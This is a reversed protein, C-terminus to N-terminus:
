EWISNMKWVDFSKVNLNDGQLVSIMINKSDEKIPYIRTSISERYNAFVELISHDIFIHLKLTEGKELKIKGTLKSNHCLTSLSSKNREVSFSENNSNYEISTREKHDESCLVDISFETLNDTIEIEAIIELARGKIEPIWSKSVCINEYKKHNERLMELEKVPQMYLKHNKISIVRPISQAGSWEGCDKFDGRSGETLWGWIIRRGSKDILSNPAYFGEWGSYDLTGESETVFKYDNNITGICYKVKDNPSYVLVYKDGLKFCNPCEWIEEDGEYLVNLFKWQKLDKSRYILVCGKKNHSGGVVMFWYGDEKWVFPDRWEKIEIDGHIDLSLVPNNKYKEWNTMDDHSVAMWQEAGDHANRENEGISTYFITPIGDDSIVSCGSFCHTEGLDNSPFLAIPLYEWHVLDESVAHGWHMTNWHYDNPNYQYFLHYKGEYYIVGNPDNMWNKEPMFHYIPRYLNM